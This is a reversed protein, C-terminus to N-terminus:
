KSVDEWKEYYPHFMRYGDKKALEAEIFSKEIKRPTANLPMATGESEFWWVGLDKEFFSIGFIKAYMPIKYELMGVERDEITSFKEFFIRPFIQFIFLCCTIEGVYDYKKKIYDLFELYNKREKGDPKTWSWRNETEKDLIRTGSLYVEDKKIGAFHKEISDFVLMDWQVVAVSDWKLGRGRKEYWDLIMLDGNIWKWDTNDYPAVYFDDLYKGLRKEYEDAESRNGGFLGYIKLNPNYKKLMQLRNECIDPEKYFWFLIALQM